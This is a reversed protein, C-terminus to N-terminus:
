VDEAAVASSVVPSAAEIPDEVAAAQEQKMARRHKPSLTGLTRRWGLKFVIVLGAAGGAIASAIMSGSNADLYAM